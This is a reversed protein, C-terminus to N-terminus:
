RVVRSIRLPGHNPPNTAGIAETVLDLATKALQRVRVWEDTTLDDFTWGLTEYALATDVQQLAGLAHSWDSRGALQPKLPVFLDDFELGLEDAEPAVGLRQLHSIQDPASTALRGLAASLAILWSGPSEAVMM